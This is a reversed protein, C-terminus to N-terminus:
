NKNFILQIKCNEYESKFFKWLDLLLIFLKKSKSYVVFYFLFNKSDEFFSLM